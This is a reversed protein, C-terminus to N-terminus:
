LQNMGYIKTRLRKRSKQQLISRKLWRLLISSAHVGVKLTGGVYDRSTSNKGFRNCSMQKQQLAPIWGHLKGLCKFADYLLDRSEWKEDAKFLENAIADFNCLSPNYTPSNKGALCTNKFKEKDFGVVMEATHPKNDHSIYTRTGYTKLGKAFLASPCEVAGLAANNTSDNTAAM